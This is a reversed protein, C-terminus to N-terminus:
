RTMAGNKQPTGDIEFTVQPDVKLAALVGALTVVDDIMVAVAGASRLTALMARQADTPKGGPRKCEVFVARGTGPHIALVDPWGPENFRVYRSRGAYTAAIAGTNQRFALYGNVRLLMLVASQVSKEDTTLKVPPGM